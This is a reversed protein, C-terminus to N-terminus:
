CRSVIYNVISESTSQPPFIESVGKKKLEESQHQPITGGCIVLIHELNNKKLMRLLEVIQEYNSAHSSIGIVDVDEQVAARVIMEPTQYIGLYVVEMGADMLIRCVVEAGISHGDLGIVSVLVKIRERKGM